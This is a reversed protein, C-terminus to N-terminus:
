LYSQLNLSNMKQLLYNIVKFTHSAVQENCMFLSSIAELMMKSDGRAIALSILCATAVSTLQQSPSTALSAKSTSPIDNTECKTLNLLTSFLADAIKLFVLSFENKQM